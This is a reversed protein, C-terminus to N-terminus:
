GFQYEKTSAILALMDGVRRSLDDFGEDTDWNLNGEGQVHAELENRTAENIKLPGILDLCREVFARPTMSTGSTAVRSIIDQVGPLDTNSVRDAVFNIRKALTGSNIWGNGTHWGEVSPPNLISQGMYGPEKAVPEIIPLRPGQPQATLYGDRKRGAGCWRRM